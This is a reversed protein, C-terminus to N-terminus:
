HKLAELVRRSLHSRLESSLKKGEYTLYFVDVAKGGETSILVLEINCRLAAIERGTRYLLGISDPAVIEMISYREPQEEAFFVNPSFKPAWSRLIPSHEKSQVLKEVSVEKKIVQVLLHRFRDKESPNLHFVEAADDFQFFDLVTKQHNAFGYGKLINMDFYSLVGVIESFLDYQDPTVVCLEYHNQHQKLRLQIPQSSSLRAALRYHEHIESWPCAHLYRKPFGKLFQEFDRPDFEQPLSELLRREVDREQIREQGYALTLEQYAAVYLQWLLDKKWENLTEPAVAKIDAFTLLCLLRLHDTDVALDTLRQVVKRDEIDRRFAMQSMVLHHRVLFLITDAEEQPFQFRKLAAKALQTSKEAHRGEQIKGVDHLLLALILRDPQETEELLRCFRSDSPDQQTLFNEVNQIALLTHEDVTYKHYFDRILRAKIGTLEPFLMELVGLEFMTSLVRYLGPRPQLIERVMPRIAPCDVTPALEPLAASIERLTSDALPRQQALSDIFIQLLQEVSGIKSGQDLEIGSPIPAPQYLHLGRQCFHHLVRAQLFYRSMLSEVGSKINQSNDVLREAVQEQLRHTLQNHNRGAQFHLLMRLQKLFRYAQKVEEESYPSFGQKTQLDQLWQGVLFDRLGGPAEKVDPELQYITSRYKEHRERTTNVIRYALDEGRTRLFGPFLDQTLRQGLEENGGVFRADFLTLTLGQVALDASGLAELSWVQQGLDLKLDWLDQLMSKILTESESRNEEQYLLLLDVDSYPYLEGRGYGGVALICFHGDSLYRESVRRILRDLELTLSRLASDPDLSEFFSRRINERHLDYDRLWTSLVQKTMPVM